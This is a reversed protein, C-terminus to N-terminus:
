IKKYTPIMLLEQSLQEAMPCNGDIYGFQKAWTICNAFHTATEVKQSLYLNHLKSVNNTRAVVMWGNEGTIAYKM